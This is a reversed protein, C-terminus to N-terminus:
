LSLLEVKNVSSEKSILTSITLDDNILTKIPRDTPLFNEM